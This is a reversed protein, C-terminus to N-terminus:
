PYLPHTAELVFATCGIPWSAESYLGHNDSGGTLFLNYQDGLASLAARQVDSHNPYCAELGSLGQAVLAPIADISDYQYPHALVAWGGAERILNIAEFAGFSPLETKFATHYYRRYLEGYISTEYGRDCLAHMIHQRYITGAAGTYVAVEAYDLPYGLLQLRSIIIQAAKNRSALISSCADEVLAHDQIDYGLIHMKRGTMPCTASLEVGPILQIGYQAAAKEAEQYGQMTDHEVFSIVQLGLKHACTIIQDSSLSGDSITSHLHLDAKLNNM